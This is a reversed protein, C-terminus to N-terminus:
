RLRRGANPGPTQEFIQEVRLRIAFAPWHAVSRTLRRPVGISELVDAFAELRSRVYASEDDRALRTEIATGKVQTAANTLPHTTAVALQKTTALNGILTHSTAIPVYVRLTELGDDSAVAVARCTAPVGQADVTGVIVSLGPELCRQARSSIIDM